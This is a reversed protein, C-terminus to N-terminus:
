VATEKLSGRRAGAALYAWLGVRISAPAGAGQDFTFRAIPSEYIIFDSRRGVIAVAGVGATGDTSAWSLNVPVGLVSAGSAAAGQQGAANTPGLWPMLLRGASDAQKLANAFLTPSLFLGEAPMFRAVQHQVVMDVAGAHPTAATLTVSLDTSGAEVVTKVATESTQAYAESLDQIIMAEAAPDAGDLVQRAVATEGGYLLPTITTPTTAFDSAAPNVGEASQVAVTTSTTVKPYIRPRADSIPFRDFFSALPRGKLIRETILGPMYESPYAGGLESSLVDGARTLLEDVTDTLFAYHRDQRERAQSDGRWAQYADSLFGHESRPTYIMEPRTVRLAPSTSRVASAEAERRQAKLETLQAPETPPTPEPEPAPEPNPTERLELQDATMATEDERIVVRSSDYAPTLAGAIAAVRAASHRVAGGRTKISRGLPAWEVSVGNAGAEVQEIYEAAEPTGRLEARFLLGEPTDILQTVGGIFKRGVHDSLFPLRAGDSRRNWREAEAAFAGRSFIERYGGVSEWEVEYPVAM